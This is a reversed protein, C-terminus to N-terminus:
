KSVLSSITQATARAATAISMSASSLGGTAGSPGNTWSAGLSRDRAVPIIFLLRRWAIALITIASDRFKGSRERGHPVIIDDGADDPDDGPDDSACLRAALHRGAIRAQVGERQHARHDHGHEEPLDETPDTGMRATQLASASWCARM